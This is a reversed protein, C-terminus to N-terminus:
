VNVCRILYSVFVKNSPCYQDIIDIGIEDNLRSLKGNLYACHIANRISSDITCSNTKHESAIQKYTDKLSMFPNSQMLSTVRELYVFGKKDPTIGIRMLLKSISENKM